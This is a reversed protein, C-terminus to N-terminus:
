HGHECARCEHRAPGVIAGHHLLVRESPQRKGQRVLNLATEGSGNVVNVAAGRGILLELTEPDDGFAAVTMLATNGAADKANVDAGSDLLLKVVELQRRLAAMVLPTIGSEDAAVDVRAGQELLRPILAWMKHEIAGGLATHGGRQHRGGPPGRVDLLARSTHPLLLLATEEHNGLIAGLLPTVGGHSALGAEDARAGHKLLLRVTDSQGYRSAAMLATNGSEDRAHVDAGLTLLEAVLAVRGRMAASALPTTRESEPAGVNLGHQALLRLCAIQRQQISEVQQRPTDRSLPNDIFASLIAAGTAGSTDAGAKLLMRVVEPNARYSAYVLPTGGEGDTARVDAGKALLFAILKEDDTFMAQMLATRGGAGANVDAGGAILRSVADRLTSQSALQLAPTAAKADHQRILDTIPTPAHPGGAAAAPHLPAAALAWLLALKARM